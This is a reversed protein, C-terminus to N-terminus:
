ALLGPSLARTGIFNGGNLAQLGPFYVGVRNSADAVVLNGYQDQAVALTAGASQVLATSAPNILLFQYSPFKRVQGSNTDTVWIESTIPNVFIGRPSNLGALKLTAFADQSPTGPMPVQDFVLVRNNSSDTVFLRAENDTAIHSPATMRN